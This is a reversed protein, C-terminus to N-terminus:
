KTMDNHVASYLRYLVERNGNQKWYNEVGCEQVQPDSLQISFKRM